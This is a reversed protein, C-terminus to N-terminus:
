GNGRRRGVVYWSRQSQEPKAKLVFDGPTCPRSIRAPRPANLRVRDLLRIAAPFRTVTM